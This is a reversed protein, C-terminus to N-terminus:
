NVGSSLYGFLEGIEEMLAANVAEDERRCHQGFRGVVENVLDNGFQLAEAQVPGLVGGFSQPAM